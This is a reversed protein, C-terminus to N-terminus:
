TKTLYSISQKTAYILFVLKLLTKIKGSLLAALVGLMFALFASDLPQEKIIQTIDIKAHRRKSLLDVIHSLEERTNNIKTVFEATGAM